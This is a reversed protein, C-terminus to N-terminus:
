KFGLEIVPLLRNLVMDYEPQIKLAKLCFEKALKFNVREINLQAFAFLIEAKTAWNILLTDEVSKQILLTQNLLRESKEIDGGFMAPTYMLHTAEVLNIKASSKSKMLLKARDLCDESKNGYSIASFFSLSAMSIAILNTPNIGLSFNFIMRM